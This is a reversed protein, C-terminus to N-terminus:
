IKDKKITILGTELQEDNIVGDAVDALVIKQYNGKKLFKLKGTEVLTKLYRSMSRQSIKLKKNLPALERTQFEDPLIDFFSDVTTNGTEIEGPLTKFIDLASHFSQEVLWFASQFDTDSCIVTNANSKNESYRVVSITAAIRFVMNMHRKAISTAYEGGEEECLSHWKEGVEKSIKWQNENFDVKINKERLERYLFYFDTGFVDFQPELPKCTDCPKVDKWKSKGGGQLITFRSFTGDQNSQFLGSVQSPTGTILISLKPTNVVLHEANNKRMQSITENHYAKRLVMSNDRGHQNGMMNTLGDIESEMILGAMEGDNEALQEILKSSTTNGPITLLPVRPKKPAKTGDNKKAKKYIELDAYYEKLLANNESIQEKNIGNVLRFFLKVKGKGSAPPYVILMMIQPYTIMDNYNFWVNPMLSGAITTVAYLGMLKEDVTNMLQVPKSLMKPMSELVSNLNPEDTKNIENKEVM